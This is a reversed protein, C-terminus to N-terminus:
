QQSEFNTLLKRQPTLIPSDPSSSKLIFILLIPCFPYFPLSFSDVPGLNDAEFKVHSCPNLERLKENNVLVFLHLIYKKAIRDLDKDWWTNSGDKRMKEKGTQRRVTIVLVQAM